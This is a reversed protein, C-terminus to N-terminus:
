NLKPALTNLTVEQLDKIKIKSNKPLCIMNESITRGYINETDKAYNNKNYLYTIHWYAKYGYSWILELLEKSKEPRNNEVYLTPQYKTILNKAGALVKNEMGEVDIKIFKLQNIELFDDLKVLPVKTGSMDYKEIELAGFNGPVDYRIDPLRIYGNEDAIGAHFCEVNTISNLAMNACLLQFIIRQPEFAYVRGQPGVLQSLVLTHAGANAGADIVIDGPKCLQKFIDVEFECYEGYKELSQGIYKDNKNYVTYGYKGKIVANPGETEIIKQMM